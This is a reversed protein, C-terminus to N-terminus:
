RAGLSLSKLIDVVAALVEPDNIQPDPMTTGDAYGSPDSLYALLAEETWRGDLASLAASYSFGAGTAIDRDFAQGLSPANGGALIGLSHCQVCQDVVTQLEAKQQATLDMKAINTTVFAASQDLAGVSLRVVKKQDTWLAIEDGHQHVYRIRAGIQIRENFLVRGDRIRIRLLMRGALSGALLDGDWAPHFDDVKTISSIAVSPLWSFLSREFETHRGYDISGPLPLGNYRTGLSVTPYGYHLGPQIRNLEDGGRRGHEVTYIAGDDDIVVGQM